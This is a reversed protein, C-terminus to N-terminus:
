EMVLRGSGDVSLVPVLSLQAGRSGATWSFEVGRIVYRRADPIDLVPSRVTVVTNPRWLEGNDDVWKDTPIKIEAAQLNIKLMAWGAAEDLGATDLDGAEFVLQRAAPVKDDFFGLSHAIGGDGAQSVAAYSRFRTTYDYTAEYSTAIRGTM